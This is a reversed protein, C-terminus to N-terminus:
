GISITRDISHFYATTRASPAGAAETRIKSITSFPPAINLWALRRRGNHSSEARLDTM